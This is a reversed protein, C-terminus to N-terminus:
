RLAGGGPSPAAAPGTAVVAAAGPAIPLSSM